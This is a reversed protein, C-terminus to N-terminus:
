ESEILNRKNIDREIQRKLAEVSPFKKEERMFSILEVTPNMSYINRDFDLIYTESNLRGGSEVTPRVGINTVSVYRKNELVTYSAYVGKKPEVFGNEFLQNFTPIGLKRGLKKGSIVESRYCFRRGLMENAKEIEGNQVLSRIRTSSISEGSVKELEIVSLMINRSECLSSLVAPTGLANKAFRYNEGCCLAGANMKKILINDLFEDSSLPCIEGFSVTVPKIGMEKLIEDRRSDPILKPPAVGTLVSQPHVDFLMIIPEFGNEKASRVTNEIIKLHGRHLGDFTGLAVATKNM